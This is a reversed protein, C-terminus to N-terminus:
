LFYEKGCFIHTNIILLADNPKNEKAIKRCGGGWGWDEGDRDGSGRRGGGGGDDVRKVMAMTTM